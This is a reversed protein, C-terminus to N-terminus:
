AHVMRDSSVRTFSDDHAEVCRCAIVQQVAGSLEERLFHKLIKSPRFHTKRRPPVFVSAGTKPNRALPKAKTLKVEFVGFDRVEVRIEPNATMLLDRIAALVDGVMRDAEHARLDHREALLRAIDRRTLTPVREKM